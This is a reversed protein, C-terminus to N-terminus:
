KSKKYFPLKVVTAKVPKGRIAVFVTTGVAASGKDLLAIAIPKNVFPAQTGSTVVGLTTTGAEDVVDYGHRAIGRDVMELGRLLRPLLAFSEVGGPVDNRGTQDVEVNM